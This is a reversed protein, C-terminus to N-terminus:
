VAFQIVNSPVREIRGFVVLIQSERYKGWCFYDQLYLGLRWWCIEPYSSWADVSVSIYRGGVHRRPWAYSTLDWYGTWFATWFATWLGTWPGTWLGSDLNQVLGQLISGWGGGASRLTAVGRRGWKLEWLCGSLCLYLSRRCAKQAM